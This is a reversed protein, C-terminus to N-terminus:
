RACSVATNLQTKILRLEVNQQENQRQLQEYRREQEKSSAALERVIKLLEQVDNNEALTYPVDPAATINEQHDPMCQVKEPSLVEFDALPDEIKRNDSSYVFDVHKRKQTIRKPVLFETKM